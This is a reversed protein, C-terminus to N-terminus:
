LSLTKKIYIEKEYITKLGGFFNEVKGKQVEDKSSPHYLLIPPM